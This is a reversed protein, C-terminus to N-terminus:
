APQAGAGPQEGRNGTATVAPWVPEGAPVESPPHVAHGDDNLAEHIAAARGRLEADATTTGHDHSEIHLLSGDSDSPGPAVTLAIENGNEHRLTAHFASRYDEDAFEGTVLEYGAVESLIEAVKDALNVRTQSSYLRIVAGEVADGLRAELRPAEESRLAHLAQTDTTDDRARSLADTVDRRLEALDGNTWYDVDCTHDPIERGEDDHVPQVANEEILREAMVLAEVAQAQAVRREQDRHEADVRLESLQHYTDQVVALAADYRGQAANQEATELRARLRGLRGPAYREHPVTDAILGAMARADALWAGTTESAQVRDRTLEGLEEAL